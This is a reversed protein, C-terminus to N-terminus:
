KDSTPPVFVRQGLERDLMLLGHGSNGLLKLQEVVGGVHSEEEVQEDVFWQLMSRSAYDFEQESLIMLNTIRESITKEHALSAEFIELPSDWNEEPKDITQLDIKGGRELIHNYFKFAHSMEEQAQINMWSAFGNLNKLTFHASMSLYLYASFMEANIQENFATAIKKSIM